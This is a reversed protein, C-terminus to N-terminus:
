GAFLQWKEYSSPLVLFREVREILIIDPNIRAIIGENLCPSWVTHVYGFMRALYPVMFLGFSDHFFLLKKPMLSTDCEWVSQSDTNIVGNNYTRKIKENLPCIPKPEICNGGLKSLLDANEYRYKPPTSILEDRINDVAEKHSDAFIAEVARWAGFTTWHTDGKTFNPGYVADRQAELPYCFSATYSQWQEQFIKLIQFLPREPSLAMGEPLQQDFVCEKNPVVLFRCDIGKKEIENLENAFVRWKELQEPQLQCKGQIQDIVRNTDNTLFLQGEKGVLVNNRDQEGALLVIVPSNGIHRGSGKGCVELKCVKTPAAGQPLDFRFGRGGNELDPREIDPALEAIVVGDIKVLLSSDLGDDPLKAWGSICNANYRELFGVVM